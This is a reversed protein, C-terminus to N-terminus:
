GTNILRRPAIRGDDLVEGIGLFSQEEDAEKNFLRVQGEVNTNPVFVPQGQKVYYAMLESLEVEPLSAVTAFTPLLLADLHENRVSLDEIEAVIEEVKELSIMAESAFGSVCTRHLAIVHAGCGLVEGLDDVLSRVYTGKSCTLELDIEDARVDLLKIDYINVKRSKREVEIGQRALLYLPQGNHKLASYMPPVQVIEGRFQELAQEVKEETIGEVLRTELIESDVDGSATKVGLKATTRYAKDAELLYQSFKTAEGFCLPLMGTALPDLSGTHGAKAAGYLRKVHQLAANSSIGLPKDLLFVGNVPRGPNRKRFRRAM